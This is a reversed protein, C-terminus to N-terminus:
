HHGEHSHDAGMDSLMVEMRLIEASQDAVVHSLFESLATEEGAGPEDLLANVMDIAGQHHHIMGELFLRDFRRGEAAALADMQAPSLMGHMLPTHYPDAPAAAHGAHHGGHGGHADHGGHAHGTRLDADEIPEGRAELWRRMQAMEGDQTLSIRRGIAAVGQHDSRAEILAVMDVAQQHHVIMHQMFAVDAPAYGTRSMAVSEEASLTRSAEGPAGPQILPPSASAAGGTLALSLVYAASAAVKDIM